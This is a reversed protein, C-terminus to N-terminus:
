EGRSAGKTCSVGCRRTFGFILYNASDQYPFFFVHGRKAALKAGREAAVASPLGAREALDAFTTLLPSWQFAVFLTVKLENLNTIQRLLHDLIERPITDANPEEFGRFTETGAAPTPQESM